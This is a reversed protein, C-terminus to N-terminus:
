ETHVDQADMNTHRSQDSETDLDVSFGVEAGGNDHSRVAPLRAERKTANAPKREENRKKRVNAKKWEENGTGEKGGGGKGWLRGM